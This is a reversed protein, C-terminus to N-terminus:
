GIQSPRDGTNKVTIKVTNRNENCIVPKSSLIYEGPILKNSVEKGTPKKATPTKTKSKVRTKSKSAM